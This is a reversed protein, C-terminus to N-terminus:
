PARRRRAELDIAALHQGEDAAAARALARGQAADVAELRDVAALDDDAAMADLSGFSSRLASRWSTPM